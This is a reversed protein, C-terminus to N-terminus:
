LRTVEIEVREDKRHPVKELKYEAVIGRDNEVIGLYYRNAGAGNKPAVQLCDQLYKTHAGLNAHDPEVGAYHWTYTVHAKEWPLAPHLLVTGDRLHFDNNAPRCRAWRLTQNRGEWFVAESYDDADKKKTAWHARSNARLSVPPLPVSFRIAETLRAEM